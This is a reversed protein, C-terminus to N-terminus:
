LSPGTQRLSEADYRTQHADPALILAVAGDREIWAGRIAVPGELNALDYLQEGTVPHRHDPAPSNDRLWWASHRTEQGDEWAVTLWDRDFDIATARIAPAEEDRRGVSRDGQRYRRM